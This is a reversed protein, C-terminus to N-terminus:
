PATPTLPATAPPVPLGHTAPVTTARRRLVLRTTRAIWSANAEGGAKPLGSGQAPVLRDARAVSEAHRLRAIDYAAQPHISM